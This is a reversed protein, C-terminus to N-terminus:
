HHLPLHPPQHSFPPISNLNLDTFIEMHSEMSILLSDFISVGYGTYLANKSQGDGEANKGAATEILLFNYLLQATFSDIFHKVVIYNPIM